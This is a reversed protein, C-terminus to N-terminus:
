LSVEIAELEDREAQGDPQDWPRAGENDKGYPVMGWPDPRQIDEQRVNLIIELEVEVHIVSQAGCANCRYGVETEADM